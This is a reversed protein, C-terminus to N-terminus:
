INGQNAYDERSVDLETETLGASLVADKVKKFDDFYQPYISPHCGKYLLQRFRTPLNGLKRKVRRWLLLINQYVVPKREQMNNVISDWKKEFAKRSVSASEEISIGDVKSLHKAVGKIAYKLKEASYMERHRNEDYWTYTNPERSSYFVPLVKMKGFTFSLACPFIEILGWDSIYKKTEMWILKFADTRHLAYYPYYHTQGSLYAIIRDTGRNELSSRGKDYLPSISFGNKSVLEATTHGFYLGHVSSFDLNEQLFDRSALIGAPILFDDDACLVTFPTTISQCGDAIKSSLFISSDYKKYSVNERELYPKVKNDLEDSSSDLILFLFHHDYKDYFKLLRLLFKYRNYTPIVITLDSTNDKIIQKNERNM